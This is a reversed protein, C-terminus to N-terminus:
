KPCVGHSDVDGWRWRYAVIEVRNIRRAAILTKTEPISAAFGMPVALVKRRSVRGLEDYLVLIRHDSGANGITQLYGRDLRLTPLSVWMDRDSRAIAARVSDIFQLPPSLTLRRYGQATYVWATYPRLMATVVTEMGWTSVWGNAAGASPAQSLERRAYVPTETGDIRLLMDGDSEQFLLIWGRHGHTASVLIMDAAIPIRRRMEGKITLRYKTVPEQTVFEVLTDSLFAAVPPQAESPLDVYRILQLQEDLIVL